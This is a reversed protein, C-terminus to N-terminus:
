KYATHLTVFVGFYVLQSRTVFTFYLIHQIYLKSHDGQIRWDGSEM